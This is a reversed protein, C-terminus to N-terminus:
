RMKKKSLGTNMSQPYPDAATLSFDYAKIMSGNIRCTFSNKATKIIKKRIQCTIHFNTGLSPLLNFPNWIAQMQPSFM